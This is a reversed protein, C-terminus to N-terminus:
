LRRDLVDVFAGFGLSRWFAQGAANRAAVRVEVRSAGRERAWACAATSSRAGSGAAARTRPSSSNPSRPAGRSPSRARRTRSARRASASSARRRSPSGPRRRRTRSSSRSRARRFRTAARRSLGPDLEAHLALLSRWLAAIADLDASRARRLALAAAPATVRRAEDSRGAVRRGEDGQRRRRLLQRSGARVRGALRRRLPHRGDRARRERRPPRGRLPHRDALGAVIGTAGSKGIVDGAKVKQGVQVPIGADLGTYESWTGDAHKIFVANTQSALSQQPGSVTFGDVVRAVEGDRAAVVPSASRCAGTSATSARASTRDRSARRARDRRQRLPRLGHRRQRGPRAHAAGEFRVAAPLARQRRAERRAPRVRLVAGDAQKTLAASAEDASGSRM